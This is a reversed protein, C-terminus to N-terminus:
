MGDGDSDDIDSIDIDLEALCSNV